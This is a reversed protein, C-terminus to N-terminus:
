PHYEAVFRFIAHVSDWVDEADLAVGHYTRFRYGHSQLLDVVQRPSVGRRELLGLHLELCIPPKRRALLERAGLLVEYEFGEVDIKLLDPELGRAAVDSDISTMEVDIGPAGSAGTEVSAFNNEAVAIRVRGPARGVACPRLQIRSASGARTIRGVAIAMQSPSPEYAVARHGPGCACFLRSYLGTAAGIDALTTCRRAFELIGSAEELSAGVFHHELEMREDENFPVRVRGDLVLEPRGPEGAYEVRLNVRAEHYGYLRGRVRRQVVEPLIWSALRKLGRRSILHTM